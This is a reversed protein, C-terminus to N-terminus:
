DEATGSPGELIYTRGCLSPTLVAPFPMLFFDLHTEVQKRLVCFDELRSHM